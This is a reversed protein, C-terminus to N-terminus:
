FFKVEVMEGFYVMSFSFDELFSVVEFVFDKSQLVGLFFVFVVVKLGQVQFGSNQGM